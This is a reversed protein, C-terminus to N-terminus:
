TFSEKNLENPNSASLNCLFLYNSTQFFALTFNLRNCNFYFIRTFYINFKCIIMSFIYMNYNSFQKYIYSFYIMEKWNMYMDIFM